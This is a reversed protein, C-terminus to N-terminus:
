FSIVLLYRKTESWELAESLHKHTRVQMYTLTM